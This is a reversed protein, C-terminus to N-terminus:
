GMALRVSIEKQRNTARVLLLNAVNVCAIVLVLGVLVMLTFLLPSVHKRIWSFGRAGPQVDVAQARIDRLKDPSLAAGEYDIFAEQGLLTMEARAKQVSVGLKLRGMCLLWNADRKDLRPDGPNVQAQMSLPIWLDTPSGVVDGTFHRPGVGIVTFTSGNLRLTRGLISSDRAFRNEWYDYSIVIVPNAGPTQDEAASFTRGLVPSVGLVEFYNGSVLRGRVQELLGDGVSM